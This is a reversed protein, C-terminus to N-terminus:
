IDWGRALLKGAAKLAQITSPGKSYVKMVPSDILFSAALGEDWEPSFLQDSKIGSHRLATMVDCNDEEDPTLTNSLDDLQRKVVDSRSSKYYLWVQYASNTLSDRDATLGNSGALEMAIDYLLPGWGSAAEVDQVMWAGGCHGYPHNPSLASM